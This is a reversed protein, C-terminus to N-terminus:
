MLDASVRALKDRVYPDASGEFLVWAEDVLARARGQNNQLQALRAQNSRVNAMHVRNDWARAAEFARDFAQEARQIEERALAIEGATSWVFQWVFSLAYRETQEMAADIQRQAEVLDGMLLTHYALNNHALATQVVMGSEEALRLAEAFASAAAELNGRNALLNGREFAVQGALAGLHHQQTLEGAREHLALAADYTGSQREVTAAM